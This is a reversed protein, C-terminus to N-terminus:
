IPKSKAIGIDRMDNPAARRCPATAGPDVVAPVALCRSLKPPRTCRIRKDLAIDCLCSALSIFTLSAATQPQSSYRAGFRQVHTFQRSDQIDARSLQQTLRLFVIQESLDCASAFGNGVRSANAFIADFNLYVM